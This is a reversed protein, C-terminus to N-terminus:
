RLWGRKGGQYALWFLIVSVLLISIVLSAGEPAGGRIAYAWVDQALVALLSLGLLWVSWRRLLLLGLSGLAGAFVSIAFAGVVWPPLGAAAM